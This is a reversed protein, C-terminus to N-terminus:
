KSFPLAGYIFRFLYTKSINDKTFFGFDTKAVSIILSVVITFVVCFLIGKLVGLIAGLFRNFSGLISFSFLKNLTRALLKVAFLLVIILITCIALSIIRVLVPKAVSSVASNAVTKASEEGINVKEQLSSKDIGFISSNGTVIEPLANWVTDTTKEGSKEINEEVSNIISPEITKEYIVNAVPSSITICLYIVIISGVVEIASRVFGRKASIIASFFIIAILIADIIIWTM